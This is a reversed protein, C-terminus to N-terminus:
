LTPADSDSTQRSALSRNLLWILPPRGDSAAGTAAEAEGAADDLPPAIWRAAAARASPPPALAALEAKSTKSPDSPGYSTSAPPPGHQPARQWM